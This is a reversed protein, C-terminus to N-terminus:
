LAEDNKVETSSRSLAQARIASMIQKITTWPVQVRHTIQEEGNPDWVTWDFHFEGIYAAKTKPSPTVAKVLGAKEAELATVRAEAADLKGQMDGQGAEYGGDFDRTEDAVQERLEDITAGQSEILALLALIAAPQAAKLYAADAAIQEATRDRYPVGFRAITKGVWGGNPGVGDAAVSIPEGDEGTYIYWKGSTAQSALARLEAVVKEASDTPTSM